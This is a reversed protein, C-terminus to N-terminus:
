STLKDVRGNDGKYYDEGGDRHALSGCPSLLGLLLPVLANQAQSAARFISRGGPQPSNKM